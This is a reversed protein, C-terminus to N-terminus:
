RRGEIKTVRILTKIAESIEDGESYTIDGISYTNRPANKMTDNLTNIAKLVEDDGNQNKNMISSISSAKNLVGISPNFGFMNNLLGVGSSVQSLDLIPTITPQSDIDLDISRITESIGNITEELSTATASAIAVGAKKAADVYKLVGIVYGEGVYEGDEITAKAPSNIIMAERIGDNVANGLKRGAEKALYIYNNIGDIFGQVCYYGANYMKNRNSESQLVSVIDEVLISFDGKITLLGDNIESTLANMMDLGAGAFEDGLGQVLDVLDQLKDALTEVFNTNKFVANMKGVSDVAFVELADGLITLNKVIGPIGLYHESGTLESCFAVIAKAFSSLKDPLKKHIEDPLMLFGQEVKIAGLVEALSKAISAGSKISKNNELGETKTAFENIGDGLHGMYRKFSPLIRAFSGSFTEGWWSSEPMQALAEIICELAEAGGKVKDATIDKTKDWFNYVGQGLTSLTVPFRVYDIEGTFAQAFGNTLPIKSIAEVIRELAESGGKVKDVNINSTKDSFALVANGLEEFIASYSSMSDEAEKAKADAKINRFVTFDLIKGGVENLQNLLKTGTLTLLATALAQASEAVEKDPLGKIFPQLKTIFASFDDAMDPLTSTVGAGIGGIIGGFFKGISSGLTALLNGGDKLLDNLGKIRYLGGLGSLIGIVGILGEVIAGLGALIALYGMGKSGIMVNGLLNLAFTLGAMGALAVLMEPGAIMRMIDVANQIHTIPIFGVLGCLAAVGGILTGLGALSSLIGTIKYEPNIKSILTLVALLGSMSGLALIMKASGLIALKDAGNQITQTSVPIVGIVAVAAIVAGVVTGLKALNKAFDKFSNAEGVIGARGDALKKFHQLGFKSLLVMLGSMAALAVIAEGSGLMKLREIGREIASPNDASGSGVGLIALSATLTNMLLAFAAIGSAAKKIGVGAFRSLVTTMATFGALAILVSSDAFKKLVAIFNDIQDISTTAFGSTFGGVIGGILNGIISGIGAAISAKNELSETTDTGFTDIIDLTTAFIIGLMGLVAMMVAFGAFAGKINKGIYVLGAVFASLAALALAGKFLVDIDIKGLTKIAESFLADMLKGVSEMIRPVYEILKDIVGIALEIFAEAMDPVYTKLSNLVNILIKAISETLEGSITVLSGLLEVVLTSVAEAIKGSSNILVNCVTDVAEQLTGSLASISWVIFAIGAGAALCSAGLIGIAGAFSLLGKTGGTRNLLFTIGTLVLMAGALVSLGKGITEWKLQGLIMVSYGLSQIAASLILLAAATKIYSTEATPGQIIGKFASALSFKKSSFKNLIVLAGMLIAMTGAMATLGKGITEWKLQGLTMLHISMSGIAVALISIAGVIGILDKYNSVPVKNIAKIGTVLVTLCGFTAILGKTIKAWDIFSLVILEAAVIGIAYALLTIQLVKGVVVMIGNPAADKNGFKNILEIIALASLMAILGGALVTAGRGIEDWGMSGLQKMVIALPILALSIGMIEAIARKIGKHQAIGRKGGTLKYHDSFHALVQLMLTLVGVAGVLGLLAPVLNETKIRTLTNLAISLLLLSGSLGILVEFSLAVTKINSIMKLLGMFILGIISLASLAVELKEKNVLSLAIISAALIAIATATTQLAEAKIKGQFAQLVDGAGELVNSFGDMIDKVGKFAKKITFFISLIVGANFLELITEIGSGDFAKFIAAGIDYIVNGIAGFVTKVVSWLSLLADTFKDLGPTEIKIKARQAFKKLANVVGDIGKSIGDTVNEFISANKISDRLFVLFDGIHATVSLFGGGLGTIAKVVKWIVTGVLKLTSYLIDVVAFLGKFTRILEDAHDKIFSEINATFESFKEILNYLKQGAGESPFIQEWAKGISSGITSISRYLNAIANIFHERGSLKAISKAFDDISKEGNQIEDNFKILADRQEVTIKNNKLEEDSMLAYRSALENLSDSLVDATLTKNELSIRLAETTTLLEGEENKMNDLAVNQKKAFHIVHEMYSTDDFIGGKTLFQEWGSDLAEGLMKNRKDASKGILGSLEDSVKSWMEKAQEYDGIILRWTQSWGSQASEKLTDVLQTFTKVKTAADTARKGLETTEDTFKALTETLIDSTLWGDSLSERFLGQNAIIDDVAKGHAKATKLLETRFVEGGMGANVVSNWDMLRVTGSSVAQSLQYMATAVQQPTSGVMAGLNAIGKISSTATDLDVGAATFTGINKTMETFNYITKDAYKNLTDLANNVDDLTTGKSATNSLITQIANLQTEYEQLGTKIPDTTFMKGINKLKIAVDHELSAWAKNISDTLSFIGAKYSNLESQAAKSAGELRLSKKLKDLTNMSTQVNKEFKSNDFEMAVIREDVVKSM